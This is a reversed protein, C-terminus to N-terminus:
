WQVGGVGDMCVQVRILKKFEKLLGLKGYEYEKVIYEQILGYLERAEARFLLFSMYTSGIVQVFLRVHQVFFLLIPIAAIGAIPLAFRHLGHKFIIFYTAVFAVMMALIAVFLFFLGFVLKTPLSFRFDEISFRSTLLSLFCLVSSASFILSIADSIAFIKFWIRNLLIPIGNDPGIGGPVTFAATFVVTAILTAVLMCSNATNRLWNEGQQMLGKHQKLLLDRPTDGKRNKEEMERLSVVKKVEPALMGALHLMNNGNGDRYVNIVDTISGIEYILKFIEVHRDKVAIHFITYKNKDVKLVLDPYSSILTALFEANGQRAAIFILKQGSNGVMLGSIRQDDLLVIKEWIFKALELGEKQLQNKKGFINLGSFLRMWPSSPIAHKHNRPKRAFAHLATENQSDKEIALEPKAKVLKMAVDYIDANILAVLFAILDEIQTAQLEYKTEKYLYRVMKGRGLLAAIHIPLVNGRGEIMALDKNKELMIQAIKVNGSAAAYFFATNGTAANGEDDPRVSTDTKINLYGSTNEEDPIKNILQEVFHTHSAATAIHLATQGETNMRTKVEEPYKDLIGEATEWDGSM